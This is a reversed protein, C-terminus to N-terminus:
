GHKTSQVAENLADIFLDVEKKQLCLPPLLRLVKPNSSTGTIVRRELLAEHIARAQDGFELGVLFGKGHIAVVPEVEQLRERLYAEVDRVNALMDDDEIAELTATVAAMAIM